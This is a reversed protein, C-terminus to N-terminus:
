DLLFFIVIKKKAFKYYYAFTSMLIQFYLIHVLISGKCGIIM